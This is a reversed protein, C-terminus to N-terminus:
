SINRRRRLLLGLASFGMMLLTSSENVDVATKARYLMYGIPVTSRVGSRSHQDAQETTFWGVRKNVRTTSGNDGVGLIGWPKEPFRVSQFYVYNVDPSSDFAKGMLRSFQTVSTGWNTVCDTTINPAYCRSVQSGGWFLATLFLNSSSGDALTWGHLRGGPAMAQQLMAFDFHKTQDWRLWELQNLNDTVYISNKNDLSLEGIKIVSAMASSTSATLALVLLTLNRLQKM